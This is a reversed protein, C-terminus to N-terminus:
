TCDPVDTVYELSHHRAAQVVTGWGLTNSRQSRGSSDRYYFPISLPVRHRVLRVVQDMQVAWGPGCVGWPLLEPDLDRPWTHGFEVHMLSQRASNHWSPPADPDVKRYLYVLTMEPTPDPERAPRWAVDWCESELVLNDVQGDITMAICSGHFEEDYEHYTFGEAKVALREGEPSWTVRSPFDFDDPLLVHDTGDAASHAVRGGSLYAIRTGDPSWIPKGGGPILLEGPPPTSGDAAVVRIGGPGGYAIRDGDPHWAPDRGTYGLDRIHEGDAASIVRNGSAIETGDPSWSLGALDPTGLSHWSCDALSAVVLGVPRGWGDIPTFALMSGDQSWALEDGPNSPIFTLENFPRSFHRMCPANYGQGYAVAFEDQVGTPIITRVDDQTSTGDAAGSQAVAPTLPTVALTLALLPVAGRRVITGWSRRTTDPAPPRTTTM